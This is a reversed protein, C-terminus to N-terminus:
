LEYSDEKEKIMRWGKNEHVRQDADYKWDSINKRVGNEKLYSYGRAISLRNRSKQNYLWLEKDLKENWFRIDERPEMIVVCFEDGDIRFCTGDSSFAHELCRSAALILENGANYGCRDNTNKLRNIDLFILLANECTNLPNEFTELFEEFAKRNGLGTLSDFRSMRVAVDMEMRFRINDVMDRVVVALLYCIFVLIGFEFLREYHSIGIWWYLILSFVGSFSLIAFAQLIQLLQQNGESQYEKWLLLLILAVGGVLLIHTVILMDVFQFYGLINCIGQIAANGYFLWSYVDLSRYKRMHGTNQIFHIMPVPMLMFCYFSVLNTVPSMMTINQLMSSDTVCWIGCLITFLAADMFRREEFKRYWFYFSVVMAFLSLSTMAVVLLFIPFEENSHMRFVASCTGYYVPRIQFRGGETDALTMTLTKGAADLPLVVDCSLKDAMQRNRRFQADQYAFLTCGDMSVVMRYRAGKTTLTKGGIEAERMERYLKLPENTERIITAPLTVEVRKGEELYYWDDKLIGVSENRSGYGQGHFSSLLLVVLCLVTLQLIVEIVPHRESKKNM